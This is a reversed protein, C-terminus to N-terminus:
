ELLSLPIKKIGAELNLDHTEITRSTLSTKDSVNVSSKIGFNVPVQFMISM